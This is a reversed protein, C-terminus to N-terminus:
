RITNLQVLPKLLMLVNLKEIEEQQAKIIAQIHEPLDSWKTKTGMKRKPRSSILEQEGEAPKTEPKKQLSEDESDDSDENDESQKYISEKDEEEQQPLNRPIKSQSNPVRSLSTM